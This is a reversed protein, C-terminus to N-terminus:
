LDGPVVSPDLIEDTVLEGEQTDKTFAIHYLADGRGVLPMELLGIVYGDAPSVAPEELGGFPDAVIGLVQGKTVSQGLRVRNRFVGSAGARIWKSKKCRVPTRM